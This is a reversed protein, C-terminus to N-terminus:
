WDGNLAHFLASLALASSCGLPIPHALLHSPTEPHPVCTCGHSIWTLAHCFGGCYQLTM